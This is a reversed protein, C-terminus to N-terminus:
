SGELQRTSLLSRFSPSHKNLADRVIDLIPLQFEHMNETLGELTKM